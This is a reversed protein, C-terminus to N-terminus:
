FVLGLELKLGLWVQYFVDGNIGEWLVIGNHDLPPFQDFPSTASNLSLNTTSERFDNAYFNGTPGFSVSFRNLFELYFLSNLTGLHQTNESSSIISSYVLETQIAPKGFHNLRGFGLSARSTNSGNEFFVGGGLITYFGRTGTRLLFQVSNTEDYSLEVSRYGGKIINILGLFGGHLSDSINVIGIQFGKNIGAHNILGFQAGKLKKSHNLSSIQVGRIEETSNMIGSAQLGNLNENCVNILGSVQLGNGDKELYNYIGSFQVGNLKGQIVNIVSAQVGHLFLRSENYFGSVQFGKTGMVNQNYWGALQFGRVQGGNSNGLFGIQLGLSNFRDVNLFGLEVGKTGSSYGTLLNFSFKNQYRGSEEGNTSAGAILSFQAEQDRVFESKQANEVVKQGILYKAPFFDSIERTQVSDVGTGYPKILEVDQSPYAIAATDPLLQVFFEKQYRSNVQITKEQYGPSYINLKLPYEPISLYLRYNGSSDTSSNIDLNSEQISASSFSSSGSLKIKGFVISRSDTQKEKKGPKMKLIGNSFQWKLDAHTCLEDLIVSLMVSDYVGSFLLGQKVQLPNYAYDFEVMDSLEALIDDFKKESFSYSILDDFGHMAKCPIISIFLFAVLFISRATGVLLKLRM